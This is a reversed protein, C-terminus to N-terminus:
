QEERNEIYFATKDSSERIDDEIKRIQIKTKKFENFMGKFKDSSLKEIFEKETPLFDEDLHVIFIYDSQKVALEYGYFENYLHGFEWKGNKFKLDNQNTLIVSDFDEISFEMKQHFYLTDGSILTNAGDYVLPLGTREIEKQCLQEIYKETKKDVYGM